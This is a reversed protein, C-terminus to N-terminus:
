HKVAQDAVGSHHYAAAGQIHHAPLANQQQPEDASLVTGLSSWRISTRMWVSCSQCELSGKYAQFSYLATSYESVFRDSTM